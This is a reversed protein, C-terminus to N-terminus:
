RVEVKFTSQFLQVPKYSRVNQKDYLLKGNSSWSFSDPCCTFIYGTILRAYPQFKTSVIRCSCKLSTTTYNPQSSEGDEFLKSKLVYPTQPACYCVTQYQRWLRWRNQLRVVQVLFNMSKTQSM